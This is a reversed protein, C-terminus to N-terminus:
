REINSLSRKGYDTRKALYVFLFRGKQFHPWGKWFPRNRIKEIYWPSAKFLLHGKRLTISKRFLRMRNLSSPSSLSDVTRPLFVPKRFCSAGKNEDIGGQRSTCKNTLQAVYFFAVRGCVLRKKIHQRYPFSYFALFLGGGIFVAIMLFVRFNEKEDPVVFELHPVLSLM